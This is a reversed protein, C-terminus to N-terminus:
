STIIIVPCEPLLHMDNMEALVQYGDKQPMVLDLLVAAINRHYQKLLVMAQDGNEAELLNYDKEFISQLIIRNVEIDDVILITDRGRLERDKVPYPNIDELM